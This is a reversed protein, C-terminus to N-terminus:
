QKTGGMESEIKLIISDRTEESVYTDDKRYKRNSQKKQSIVPQSTEESDIRLIESFHTCFNRFNWYPKQLSDPLKRSIETKLFWELRWNEFHNVIAKNILDPGNDLRLEPCSHILRIAASHDSLQPKTEFKTYKSYASYWKDCVENAIRIDTDSLSNINIEKLMQTECGYAPEAVPHSDVGTTLDNTEPKESKYFHSLLFNIKIYVQDLTGDTNRIRIYEILGNKALWSKVRKTKDKGWSLGRCIYVDRAAVQNTEQMRATFILHLYLKLADNGEPGNSIFFKYAKVTIAILDNDKDIRITNFKERSISKM